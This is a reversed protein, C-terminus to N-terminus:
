TPGVEGIIAAVAIEDRVQVVNEYAELESTFGASHVGVISGSATYLYWRHKGDRDRVILFRFPGDQPAREQRAQATIATEEHPWVSPGTLVPTNAESM